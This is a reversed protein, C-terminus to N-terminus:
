HMRCQLRRSVRVRVPPLGLLGLLSHNPLGVLVSSENLISELWALSVSHEAYSEFVAYLLLNVDLLLTM